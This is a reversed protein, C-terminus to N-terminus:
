EIVEELKELGFNSVSTAWHQLALDSMPYTMAVNLHILRSMQVDDLYPRCAALFSEDALRPDLAFRKGLRRKLRRWYHRRVEVRDEDLAKEAAALQNIFASAQRSEAHRVRTAPRPQGFPQARWLLFAVATIGALMTAWGSATRWLWCCPLRRHLEDFRVVAGPPAYLRMVNIALQAHRGNALGANSLPYLSALVVVHGGGHGLSVLFPRQCDGIHIAARGCGIALRHTARLEVEGVPPWNLTPLALAASRVRPWVRRLGLDFAPLVSRDATTPALVLVGGGAVWQELVVLEQQTFATTPALVFWVHEGPEPFLLGTTRAQVDYGQDQLLAALQQAGAAGQNFTSGAASGPPDQRRLISAAALLVILLAVIVLGLLDRLYFSVPPAKM